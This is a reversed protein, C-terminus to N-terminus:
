LQKIYALATFNLARRVKLLGNSAVVAQGEVQIRDLGEYLRIHWCHQQM